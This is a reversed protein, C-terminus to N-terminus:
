RKRALRFIYCLGYQHYGHFADKWNKFVETYNAIRVQGIPFDPNYNFVFYPLDYLPWHVPNKLISTGDTNDLAEPRSQRTASTEPTPMTM